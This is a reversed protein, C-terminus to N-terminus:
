IPECYERDKLYLFVLADVTMIPYLLSFGDYSCSMTQLYPRDGNWKVMLFYSNVKGLEERNNLSDREKPKDAGIPVRYLISHLM